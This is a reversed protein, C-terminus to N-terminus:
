NRFLTAWEALATADEIIDNSLALILDAREPKPNEAFAILEQLDKIADKINVVNIAPDIMKDSVENTSLNRVIFLHGLGM